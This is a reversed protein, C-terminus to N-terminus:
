RCWDIPPLGHGTLFENARSFHGCGIFPVPPRRASLPSPHNAELVLAPGGFAHIRAAKAQAHTGWLLFVKPTDLEALREVIADTFAEWGHRAHSAAAGQEVTLVANLLLVGQRAWGRLDGSRQAPCGCDRALEAFINRLSPPPAVGEAVSFALGNAQGPGHYPDQGLVVVRVARPACAQLAALPQPPYVAHGAGVRGDVFRVLARMSPAALAAALLRRWAAPLADFHAQLSGTLRAAASM